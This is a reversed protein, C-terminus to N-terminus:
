NIVEKIMDKHGQLIIEAQDLSACNQLSVMIEAIRIDAFAAFSDSFVKARLCKVCDEFVLRIECSPGDGDRYTIM